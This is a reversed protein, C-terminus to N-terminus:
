DQKVLESLDVEVMPVEALDLITLHQTNDRMQLVKCIVLLSMAEPTPIIRVIQGGKVFIKRILGKIIQRRDREPAEPLQSLLAMTEEVEDGVDALERGARTKQEMADIEAQLPKLRTKYDEKSILGDVRLDILRALEEQKLRLYHANDAGGAAIRLAQEVKKAVREIVDRQSVVEMVMEMVPGDMTECRIMRERCKDTKADSHRYYRYKEGMVQGTLRQQCVDCHLVGSLLYTVKPSKESYRIANRQKLVDGVRYCLEVPLIPKHGGPIVQERKAGPTLEGAYLHWNKLIRYVAIRDFKVPTNATGRRRWGTDNALMAVDTISRTGASYMDFLSRLADFYFRIEWGPPLEGEAKVAQNTLPNYFYHRASPILHFTDPDRDCGYPTRGWHRQKKYVVFAAKDKMLDSTKRAHHEAGAMFVTAMFRGDAKRLDLLPNTVDVLIKGFPAIHEDYFSLYEKVNRHTKTYNYVVVGGTGPLHKLLRQWDPRNENLGTYDLDEFWVLNYPGNIQNWREIAQRQIEPSDSVEGDKLQSKRVYACLDQM